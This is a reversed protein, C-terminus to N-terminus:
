DMGNEDDLIHKTSKYGHEELFILCKRIELQIELPSIIKEYKEKIPNTIDEIEKEKIKGLRYITMELADIFTDLKIEKPLQPDIYGRKDLEPFCETGNFSHSKKDVAANFENKSVKQSFSKKSEEVSTFRKDNPMKKDM